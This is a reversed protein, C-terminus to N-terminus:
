TRMSAPALVKKEKKREKMRRRILEEGRDPTKIEDDAPDQASQTPHMASYLDDRTPRRSLSPGPGGAEAFFSPDAADEDSNVSAVSPARSRNTASRAHSSKRNMVSSPM